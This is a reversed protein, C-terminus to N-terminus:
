GAAGTWIGSVATELCQEVPGIFVRASTCASVYRGQKLSDFAMAPVSPITQSVLPCTSTLVQGGAREIEAVFGSRAASEKIPAATWVQFIVEPHVTKGRMWQAVDQIQKLSYHPCGLSVFGITARGQQSIRHSVDLLDARTIHITDHAQHGQLAAELTPAEPTLGVIHCMEVSGSTAMAAFCSKLQELDPPLFNGTLIPVGTSPLKEGVVFGVLDWEHVTRPDAEIVVIHTGHRRGTLHNGWLPTRGCVASCISAEISDANARAGWMSNMFLLAHSETSVYHEGMMPIFGIMYSACSGGEAAGAQRFRQRYQQDLAFQEPAIRLKQWNDPDVPATDTQTFCSLKELLVKDSTNLYMEAIVEDINTTKLTRLYHHAGIFIQAKKIEVLQTAGVAEAYQVIFQLAKQKALGLEGALMRREEESFRVGSSMSEGRSAISVGGSNRKPLDV